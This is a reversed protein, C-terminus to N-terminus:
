NGIVFIVFDSGFIGSISPKEITDLVWGLKMMRKQLFVMKKKDSNLNNINYPMIFEHIIQQIIHSMTWYNISKNTRTYCKQANNLKNDSLTHCQWVIYLSIWGIYTM